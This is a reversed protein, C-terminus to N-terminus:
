SEVLIDPLSCLANNGRNDNCEAHCMRIEFTNTRLGCSTTYCAYLGLLRRRKTCVLTYDSHQVSSVIVVLVIPSLTDATM